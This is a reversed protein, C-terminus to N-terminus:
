VKAGRARLIKGLKAYNRLLLALPRKGTHKKDSRKKTKVLRGKSNLRGTTRRSKKKKKKRAAM